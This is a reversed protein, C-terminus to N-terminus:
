PGECLVKHDVILFVQMEQTLLANEIFLAAQSAITTLLKIDGSFFERGDKKDAVMLVGIIQKKGNLPTILLSNCKVKDLREEHTSHNCVAIAKNSHIARWLINNGKPFATDADWNGIYAQTYLEGSDEDLFLVVGTGVSLSSAAKKLLLYCIGDVGLGTFEESLMYLLSLEEYTDSLETVTAKLDEKLRNTELNNM